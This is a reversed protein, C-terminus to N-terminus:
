SIIRQQNLMAGIHLYSGPSIYPMNQIDGSTISLSLGRLIVYLYERRACFERMCINLVCFLFYVFSDHLIHRHVLPSSSSLKTICRVVHRIFLCWSYLQELFM